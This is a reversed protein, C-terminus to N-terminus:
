LTDLGGWGMEISPSSSEQTCIIKIPIYLLSYFLAILSHNFIFRHLFNNIPNQWQNFLLSISQETQCTKFPLAKVRGKEKEFQTKM